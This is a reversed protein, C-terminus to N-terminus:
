ASVGHINPAVWYTFNSSYITRPKVYIDLKVKNNNLRLVTQLATQIDRRDADVRVLESNETCFFYAFSGSQNKTIVRERHVFKLENNELLQSPTDGNPDASPFIESLTLIQKNFQYFPVLKCVATLLDPHLKRQDMQTLAEAVTQEWQSLAVNNLKKMSFETRWYEVTQDILTKLDEYNPVDVDRINLLQPNMPYMADNENSFHDMFLEYRPYNSYKGPNREALFQEIAVLPHVRFGIPHKEKNKVYDLEEEEFLSHLSQTKPQQMQQKIM